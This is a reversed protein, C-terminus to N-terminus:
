GFTYFRGDKEAFVIDFGTILSTEAGDSAEAIIYFTAYHLKDCKQKVESYYDKGFIEHFSKFFNEVADDALNEPKELKIRTVKFDGSVNSALNSCQTAFSKKMGYGYDKQLFTEMEDIYGPFVCRSYQTYDGSAYSTFYKELTLMMDLPYEGDEYYLKVGDASVHYSGLEADEDDEDPVILEGPAEFDFPEDSVQQDKIKELIKETYSENTFVYDSDASATSSATTEPVSKSDSDKSKGCSAVAAATCLTLIFCLFKKM